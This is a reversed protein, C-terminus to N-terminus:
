NSGGFLESDLEKESLLKQSTPRKTGYLAGPKKYMKGAEYKDQLRQAKGGQQIAKTQAGKTKQQMGGVQRGQRLIKKGYRVRDAESKFETPASLLTSQLKTEATKTKDALRGARKTMRAERRAAQKAQAKPSSQIKEGVMLGSEVVAKVLNSTLEAKQQTDKQKAASKRQKYTGVKAKREEELEEQMAAQISEESVGSGQNNINKGVAALESARMGYAM